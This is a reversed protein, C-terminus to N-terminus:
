FSRPVVATPCMGRVVLHIQSDCRYSVDRVVKLKKLLYCTSSAHKQPALVSLIPDHFPTNEYIESFYSIKM